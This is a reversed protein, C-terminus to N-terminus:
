HTTALKMWIEARKRKNRVRNDIRENQQQKVSANARQRVKRLRALHGVRDAESKEGSSTRWTTM